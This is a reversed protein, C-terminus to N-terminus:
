AAEDDKQYVATYWGNYATEDTEATTKARVYGNEDPACSITATETGPEITDETTESEVSPRTMTCNYFVFRTAKVDGDIEFMLAFSVSKANADEFLVENSDAVEKLIAERIEDLFYMMELDGEYGNNNASQYYVIGDAYTKSIEGQAELSISKAGPWKIPTGYTAAGETETRTAIHVNKINYKVKNGAM